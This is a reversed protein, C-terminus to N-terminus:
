AAVMSDISPMLYRLLNTTALTYAIVVGAHGEPIYPRAIIM